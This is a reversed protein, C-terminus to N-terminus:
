AKAGCKNCFAAGAELPAGCSACFQAKPISTDSAPTGATPAWNMRPQAPQAVFGSSAPRATSSGSPVNAKIIAASNVISLISFVIALIIFVLGISRLIVDAINIPDVPINEVDLIINGIYTSIKTAREWILLGALVITIIGFVFSMISNEKGKTKGIGSFVVLCVAYILVAINNTILNSMFYAPHTGHVSSLVGSMVMTVIVFVLIPIAINLKKKFLTETDQTEM